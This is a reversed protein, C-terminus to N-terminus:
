RFGASLLGYIWRRKAPIRILSLVTNISNSVEGKCLAYYTALANARGQNWCAARWATRIGGRDLLERSMQELEKRQRELGSKTSFIPRHNLDLELHHVISDLYLQEDSRKVDVQLLMSERTGPRDLYENKEIQFVFNGLSYAILAGSYEELGQRVHPHHQIVLGAGAEALRRSLRQRWPAPHRCFELDAHLVVVILDSAGKVEAVRRLLRKESLPAVGPRNPSAWSESFESAGLLAIRLNSLRIHLPAEAEQLTMGAGFHRFGCGDLYRITSSLGDPGFDMVHNNALGFVEIGSSRLAAAVTLPTHMLAHRPPPQPLSQDTICTELNGVVLDLERCLPRVDEFLFEPGRTRVTSIVGQSLCIDGVFGISCGSDNM